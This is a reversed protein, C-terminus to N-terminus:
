LNSLHVALVEAHFLAKLPSIPCSGVIEAYFGLNMSM